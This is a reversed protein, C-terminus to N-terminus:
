RANQQALQRARDLVEDANFSANGANRELWAAAQRDLVEQWQAEEGDALNVFEVGLGEAYEIAAGVGELDHSSSAFESMEERLELIVDKVNQPLADFKAKDMVAVFSNSISLAFNTVYNVQEALGFDRLVERSSTYGTITGTALGEGVQPMPQGVPNAGLESLLPVLAGAGRMTQGSLDASSTVPQLTQLFAPETTFATIIQFDQFEAPDYELLLDLFTKSATQANQFGLPVNIVSSFAFRETDYAPSDLGVDAVGQLVGDYIDGSGLLTSGVFLEVEVQGDTRASLEEAWKEMQVAPFSAAPAFFAYTLKVPEVPATTPQEGGGSGTTPEEASSACASLALAGALFIAAGALLSRKKPM